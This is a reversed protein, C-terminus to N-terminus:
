IQDSSANGGRNSGLLNAGGDEYKEGEEERQRRKIAENLIWYIGGIIAAIILLMFSVSVGSSQGPLESVYPDVEEYEPMPNDVIQESELADGIVQRAISPPIFTGAHMLPQLINQKKTKVPKEEVPDDEEEIQKEEELKETSKGKAKSKDKVVAPSNELEDDVPDEDDEEEQLPKIGHENNQESLYENIDDIIQKRQARLAQEEKSM